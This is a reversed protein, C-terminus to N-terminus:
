KDSVIVEKHHNVNGNDKLPGVALLTFYPTKTMDITVSKSPKTPTDFTTVFDRDFKCSILGDNISVELASLGTSPKALPVSTYPNNLNWYMRVDPKGDKLACAVVSDDGMKQDLSLGLAVYSTENPAPGSLEFTLVDGNSQSPYYKFSIDGDESPTIVHAHAVFALLSLIGFSACLM